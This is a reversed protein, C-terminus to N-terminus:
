REKKGNGIRGIVMTAGFGAIILGLSGAIQMGDPAFWEQPWDEADILDITEATVAQGKVMLGVRPEVSQQFPWLGVVAGLLLGLLLGLTLKEHKALAWEVLNSIVVVGIGVGVAIPVLAMGADFVAGFEVGGEATLSDKFAEIAGLIPVYQGLLLLLYGGSIGPLIMAGAGAVGAIAFMIWNSESGGSGGPAIIAMTIMVLLGVLAGAYVAPCAPRALRWVIPVGGLTLGIFLSYMAWRHEVVLDKTPGALALIAVLASGVVCALTVLYSRKFRFKTVEAVAEIFRPYVGAALLMTGGSVGPVLNALGMLVGGLISRIPAAPETPNNDTRTPM